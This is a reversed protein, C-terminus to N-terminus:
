LGEQELFDGQSINSNPIYHNLLMVWHNPGKQVMLRLSPM